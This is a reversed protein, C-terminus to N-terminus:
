RSMKKSQYYQLVMKSFENLRNLDQDSQAKFKELETTLQKHAANIGAIPDRIVLVEMLGLQQRHSLEVRAYKDKFEEPSSWAKTEKNYIFCRSRLAEIYVHWLRGLDEKAYPDM